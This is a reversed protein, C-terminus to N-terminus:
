INNSIEPTMIALNYDRNPEVEKCGALIALWCSARFCSLQGFCEEFSVKGYFWLVVVNTGKTSKSYSRTNETQNLHNRTFNGVSDVEKTELLPFIYSVSPPPLMSGWGVVANHNRNTEFQRHSPPWQFSLSPFSAPHSPLLFARM